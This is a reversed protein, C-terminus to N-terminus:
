ESVLAYASIKRIRWAVLMSVAYALLILCACLIITWSLSVPWNTQVLGAGSALTSVVTNFGFYGGLSGAVSGLVIAPTLNLSIQNMLQFTTFGLAKQIGLERKKRLVTTKIVMYMIAVVIVSTVIIIAITVAAFIVGMEDMGASIIDDFVIIGAFIDGQDARMTETFTSPCVGDALFVHFSDFVFSQMRSFGAGTINGTFGGNDFSQIIGTILFAYDYGGSRVTVWDGIGKGTARMAGNGLAIENEHVPFRGRVLSTRRLVANDEVIDALIRTDDVILSSLMIVGTIDHVDPHNQMRNVFADAENEDRLEVHLDTIEGAITAIAVDNNVNLAYHLALGSAAAFSIGVIVLGIAIAQKKNQFLDKVALLVALPGGFKDLPMANKKFSHTTLGGRLAVLPFLKYIRRTSILSFCLVCAMVFVLIILKVPINVGPVWSFPFMAGLIGIVFPLVVQSVFVGIIGGALAISGFQLLISWIIQRNRYGIAKLAGINIMSEDITNNIRFRIAILSVVLLILAFASLFIGMLSAIDVHSNRITEYNITFNLVLQTDPAVELNTVMDVYANTFSGVYAMSELQAFLLTHNNDPLQAQLRYFTEDSVYVRRITHHMAGFFIDETSGAITFYLETESVNFRITDGLEFGGMLMIFHPIYAADGTLPLADGILTPPNMQQSECKRAIAFWGFDGTGDGIFFEGPGFVVNQTETATVHPNQQVFQMQADSIKFESLLTIFHPANLAEARQNLFSGMGTFMVIGINLFMTVILMMICLTAAQGKNKRLNAKALMWIVRSGAKPERHKASPFTTQNM